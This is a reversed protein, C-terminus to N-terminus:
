TVKERGGGNLSSPLHDRRIRRHHLHRSRSVLYLLFFFLFIGGTGAERGGGGGCSISERKANSKLSLLWFYWVYQLLPAISRTVFPPFLLFLLIYVCTIDRERKKAAALYRM